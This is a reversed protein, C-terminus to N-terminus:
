DTVPTSHSDFETSTVSVLGRAVSLVTDRDLQHGDITTVVPGGEFVVISIVQDEVGSRTITGEALLAPRGRVSIEQFSMDRDDAANAMESICASPDLRNEAQRQLGMCQSSELQQRCAAPDISSDEGDITQVCQVEDRALLARMQALLDESHVILVRAGDHWTIEGSPLYTITTSVAEAPDHTPLGDIGLLEASALSLETPVQTPWFYIDAGSEGAPPLPRGAFTLVGLLALMLTAGIAIIWVPNRKSTRSSRGPDPHVRIGGLEEFKVPDPAENGIRALVGKLIENEITKV